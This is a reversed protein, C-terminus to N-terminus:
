VKQISKDCYNKNISKKTEVHGDGSAPDILSGTCQMIIRDKTTELPQQLRQSFRDLVM